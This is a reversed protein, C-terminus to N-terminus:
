SRLSRGNVDKTLEHVFYWLWSGEGLAIDQSEDREFGMSLYLRHAATMLNHSYLVVRDARDQRARTCCWQMLGRGVGRGQVAPSVGLMRVTVEGPAASEAIGSSPDGVYTVCGVVRDTGDGQDELAVIVDSEGVRGEIDRVRELYGLDIARGFVGSYADALM